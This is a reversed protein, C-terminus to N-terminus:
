LGKVNFLKAIERLEGDEVLLMEALRAASIVHRQFAEWCLEAYYSSIGREMLALKRARGQATLTPPM